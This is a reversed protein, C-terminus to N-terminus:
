DRKLVSVLDVRAAYVLPRMSACLTLLVIVGSVGVWTFPDMPEVRFLVSRVMSSGMWAAGLGCVMGVAVLRVTHMVLIRRLQAQTAGLAARIGFEKTRQAATAETTVYIGVFTLLAAVAGLMSLVGAGLRQPSMQVALQEDITLLPQMIVTADLERIIRMTDRRAAEVDTSARIILTRASTPEQQANSVYLALPELARVNTILDPVVGVVSVVVAPETNGRFPMTVRYGIPNGGDAIFRGLSATVIAVPMSRPTDEISFRRGALLVSGITDFYQPDIATITMWSPLARSQDNIVLHAGGIMGGVNRSMSMVAVAPHQKLRQGLADFFTAAATPTYGFPALNVNGTMISATQIAPNLSLAALTSRALLTAWILLSVAIAVQAVVLAGRTRMRGVSVGLAGGRPLVEAPGSLLHLPAAIVTIIITSACACVLCALIVETGISLDLVGLAVGGPLRFSGAIDFLWSSFPIAVLAAAASLLAAELLVGQALRVRTAGLAICVAFEDRRAETRVLLLMGVAACGILLLLGSTLSLLHTFDAIGQRSLPPLAATQVSTLVYERMTGQTKQALALMQASAQREDGARMRGIITLWATPSSVTGADSFYNATRPGIQSATHLPLYVDPIDGLSLGRFERSVVGVVTAQTGSISLTRGVIAPDGAFALHWYRHSLIVVVPAGRRDEERLFGRGQPVEVGLVDFFNDSVFYLAAESQASGVGVVAVGPLRGGAAVQEFAGAERVQQFVPYRHIEDFKGADPGSQIRTGLVALNHSDRVAIPHLIVASLLSFTTGAAAIASALTVVAAATIGPRNLLRRAALHLNGM